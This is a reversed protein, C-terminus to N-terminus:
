RRQIRFRRHAWVAGASRIKPVIGFRAQQDLREVTHVVHELPLLDVCYAAWARACGRSEHLVPEAAM